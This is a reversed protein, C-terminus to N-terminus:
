NGDGDTHVSKTQNATNHCDWDSAANFDEEFFGGINAGCKIIFFLERRMQHHFIIRAASSSSFYNVGREIIFFYNFSWAYDLFLRFKLFYISDGFILDRRNAQSTM